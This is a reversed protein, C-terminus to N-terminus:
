ITIEKARPKWSCAAMVEDKGQYVSPPLRVHGKKKRRDARHKVVAPWRRHLQIIICCLRGPTQQSAFERGQFRVAGRRNRLFCRLAEGPAPRAKRRIILFPWIHFRRSRINSIKPAALELSDTLQHLPPLTVPTPQISAM